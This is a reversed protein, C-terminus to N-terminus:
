CHRCRTRSAQPGAACRVQPMKSRGGHKMATTGHPVLEEPYEYHLSSLEFACRAAIECTRELLQPPYLKRLTALPRLHCEGNPIAEYGIRDVTTKLRIATLVDHLPSRPVHCRRDGIAVLPVALAADSAAAEAPTARQGAGTPSHLEAASQPWAALARVLPGHARCLESAPVWLAICADIGTAFDERTVAYSGKVSHLRMRTILECLQTYAAQSPVLLM